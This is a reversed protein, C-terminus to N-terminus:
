LQFVSKGKAYQRWKEIEETLATGAAMRCLIEAMEAAEEASDCVPYLKAFWLYDEQDAWLDSYDLRNLQIFHELTTHLYGAKGSLRGKPNDSVGYVRILRKGNQLTIGHWVTNEPVEVDRLHLNSIVAGKHITSKGLVYSNEIYCDPEIM